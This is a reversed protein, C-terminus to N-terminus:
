RNDIKFLLSIKLSLYKKTFFYLLILQLIGSITVAYSLYYVLEDNLTYISFEIFSSGTLITDIDVQPILGSDSQKYFQFQYKDASVPTAM